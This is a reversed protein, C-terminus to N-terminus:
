DCRGEGQVCERMCTSVHLCLVGRGMGGWDRCVSLAAWSYFQTLDPVSWFYWRPWSGWNIFIPFSLSLSLHYLASGPSLALEELVRPVMNGCRSSSTELFHLLEKIWSLIDMMRQRQIHFMTSFGLPTKYPFSINDPDLSPWHLHVYIRRTRASQQTNEYLCWTIPSSLLSKNLNFWQNATGRRLKM